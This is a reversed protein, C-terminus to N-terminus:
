HKYPKALPSESTSAYEIRFNTASPFKIMSLWDYAFTFSNVFPRVSEAFWSSSSPVNKQNYFNMLAQGSFFQM